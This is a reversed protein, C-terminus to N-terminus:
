PSPRASAQPGGGPFLGALEEIAGITHDAASGDRGGQPREVAGYAAFVTPMKLERAPAIDRDPNDGVMAMDEVRVGLKKALQQFPLTTHKGSINDDATIVAEFFHFLNTAALRQLAKERPADTIIGLKYGRRILTLLTPITRPYPALTAQKARLYGQIGAALIRPDARGFEQELFRTFAHNSDIGHEYYVAELRKEAERWPMPLGADCMARAAEESAVRKFRVFDILTCDVDFAIATVTRMPM